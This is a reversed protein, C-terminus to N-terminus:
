SRRSPRITFEFQRAISIQSYLILSESQRSEVQFTSDDSSIEISASSVEQDEPVLGCSQHSVTAVIVTVAFLSPLM